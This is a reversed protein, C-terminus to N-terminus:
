HQRWLMREDAFKHRGLVRGGYPRVYFGRLCLAVEISGLCLGFRPHRESGLGSVGDIALLNRNPDGVVDDCGVAGARDHRHRCMVFTIVCKSPCIAQRNNLDNFRRACAAGNRNLIGRERGAANRAVARIKGFDLAAYRAGLRARADGRPEGGMSFSVRFYGVAKAVPYKPSGIGM